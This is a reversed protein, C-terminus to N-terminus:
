KDEGNLIERCTWDDPGGGWPVCGGDWGGPLDSLVTVLKPKTFVPPQNDELSAYECMDDYSPPEGDGCVVLDIVHIVRVSWLNM